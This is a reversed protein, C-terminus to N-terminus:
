LHGSAVVVSLGGNFTLAMDQAVVHDNASGPFVCVVIRSPPMSGVAGKSVGGAAVPSM